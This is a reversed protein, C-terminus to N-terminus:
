FSVRREPRRGLSIRRKNTFDLVSHKSFIRRTNAMCYARIPYPTQESGIRSGRKVHVVAIVVLNLVIAPSPPGPSELQVHRPAVHFGCPCAHRQFYEWIRGGGSAIYVPHTGM